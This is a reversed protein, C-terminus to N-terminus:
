LSRGLLRALSRLSRAYNAAGGSRAHPRLPYGRRGGGLHRDFRM